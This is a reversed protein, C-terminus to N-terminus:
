VGVVAETEHPPPPGHGLSAVQHIRDVEAQIADHVNRATYHTHPHKVFSETGNATRFHTTHVKHFNGHGDPEMAVSQHTIEYQVHPADAM